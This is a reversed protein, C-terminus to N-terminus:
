VPGLMVSSFELVTEARIDVQNSIPRICQQVKQTWKNGLFNWPFNVAFPSSLFCQQLQESIPVCCALGQKQWSSRKFKEVGTGGWLLAAAASGVSVQTYGACFVITNPLMARFASSQLWRCYRLKWFTSTGPHQVLPSADGIWEQSFLGVSCHLWVEVSLSHM